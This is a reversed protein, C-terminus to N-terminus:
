RSDGRYSSSLLCQSLQNIVVGLSGDTITVIVDSM